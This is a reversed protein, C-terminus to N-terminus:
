PLLCCLLCLFESRSHFEPLVQYFAASVFACLDDHMRYQTTLMAIEQGAGRLSRQVRQFFGRELGGAPERVRAPGSRAPGPRDDTHTFPQLQNQDGIAM